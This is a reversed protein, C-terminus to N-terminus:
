TKAPSGEVRVTGTITFHEFEDEQQEELVPLNVEEISEFPNRRAVVAGMPRPKSKPCEYKRHGFAGCGMCRVAGISGGNNQYYPSSGQWRKYSASNLKYNHQPPQNYHQSSNHYNSLPQCSQNYPRSNVQYSNNYKYGNDNKYSFPKKAGKYEGKSLEHADCYNDAKRGTEMVDRVEYSILEYKLIPPLQDMFHEMLFVERMEKYTRAGEAKM